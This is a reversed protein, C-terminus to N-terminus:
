ESPLSVFASRFGINWGSASRPNDGGVAFLGASAGSYWNGGSFFAREDAGNNMWMHDGEYESATSSAPLLALAKLVAQAAASVSSACTVNAFDCDRSADAQTTITASYTIKSSIWDLKISNATTGAGNPTIYAGTTADIAKWQASSVAQSNDLDAANNNVLVQLEGKVTRVGGNWEWVNGNLDWIGELTGDHSWSVPGTGTLVRATRGSDNLGPVPIAKYGTESADKGYNNNGKPLCGNAKCWLAIAAWEARTMLHWGDGKATCASIAQELTISTKPDECPLSYARNNNVINQYKSIYIADVEQGNVIFAPHVSDAGGSIVQSIKFKPIKVMVSPLGKDDYLIDNTPCVAKLAMAALDFNAM